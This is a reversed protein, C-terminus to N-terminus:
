LKIRVKKDVKLSEKEESNIIINKESNNKENEEALIESLDFTDSNNRNVGNFISSNNNINVDNSDRNNAFDDDIITDTRVVEKSDDFNAARGLMLRAIDIAGLAYVTCDLAENRVGPKLIWMYSGDKRTERYESNMQDFFIEDFGADIHSSIVWRSEKFDSQLELFNKRIMDKAPNVNLITLRTRGAGNSFARMPVDSVKYILDQSPNTKLNKSNSTSCYGRIPRLRQSKTCFAYVDQTFHGGADICAIQIPLVRKDRTIVKFDNLYKLLDDWVKSDKLDGLIVRRELFAIHKRELDSGLVILEFRNEQTDIGCTVYQIWKPANHKDIYRRCTLLKNINLTEDLSPYYVEGLTTNVFSMYGGIGLTRAALEKERLYKWSYREPVLTGTVHFSRCIRGLGDRFPKDNAPPAYAHVLKYQVEYEGYEHKCKPCRYTPNELDEFCIERYLVPMYYGCEKCIACWREQTGLLYHQYITCDETTPTSTFIAMSRLYSETRQLALTIPDGEKDLCYPYRSTEDCLLYKCTFSCLDSASRASGLLISKGSSLSINSSSASKQYDLVKGKQLSELKVQTRLFPRLRIKSLKDATKQSDLIILTNEPDYTILYYIYNLIASTNHTVIYDRTILYLASPDSVQICYGLKVDIPTISRIYRYKTNDRALSCPIRCAKRPLAFVPLTTRCALRHYVTGNVVKAHTHVKIGLSRLVEVVDAFLRNSEQTFEIDGKESIYGDADFLGQILKLRQEVSSTKYIDPIYKNAILNYAELQLHNLCKLRFTVAENGRGDSRAYNCTYRGSYYGFDDHSATIYSGSSHGGGLWLGLIYPAIGLDRKPYRVPEAMPIAYLSHNIGLERMTQMTNYMYETDLVKFSERGRASSKVLDKVTWRHNDGADVEVGDDFVIRYYPRSHLPTKYIICTEKGSQTYITDGVHLESLPKFGNPTPLLTDHSIVKGLQSPSMMVVRCNHHNDGMADTFDRFYPRSKYSFKQGRCAGEQMVVNAEAFESVKMPPPNEFLKVKM